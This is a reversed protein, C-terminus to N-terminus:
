EQRCHNMRLSAGEVWRRACRIRAVDGAGLAFALATTEVEGDFQPRVTYRGAPLAGPAVEQGAADVLRAPRASARAPVCLSSQATWVSCVSVHVM